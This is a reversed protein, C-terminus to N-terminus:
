WSVRQPREIIESSIKRPLDFINRSNDINGILKTGFGIMCKDGVAVGPVFMCGAGITTENGISCSATIIVSPGIFAYEGVILDIGLLTNYNVLVSKGLTVNKAMIVGPFLVSGDGIDADIPVDISPHILTALKLNNGEIELEIIKKRIKPVQIGTIGYIDNDIGVISSVTKYVPIGDVKKNKLSDDTDIFAIVKWIMTKSNIQEILQLVDRSGRGAGFILIKKV